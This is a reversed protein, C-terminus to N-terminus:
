ISRFTGCFQFHQLFSPDWIYDLSLVRCHETLSVMIGLNNWFYYNRVQEKIQQIRKFDFLLLAYM